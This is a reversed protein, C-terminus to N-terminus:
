HLQRAGLGSAEHWASRTSRLARATLESRPLVHRSGARTRVCGPPATSPATREAAPPPPPPCRPRSPPLWPPRGHRGGVPVKFRRPDPSPAPQPTPHPWRRRSASSGAPRLSLDGKSHREPPPSAVSCLTRALSLAWIGMRCKFCSSILHQCGEFANLLMKVKSIVM